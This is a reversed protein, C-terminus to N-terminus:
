AAIRDGAPMSLQSAPHKTYPVKKAKGARWSVIMAVAIIIVLLATATMLGVLGFNPKQGDTQELDM